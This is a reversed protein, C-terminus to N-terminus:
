IGLRERLKERIRMMDREDLVGLRRVLKATSVTQIQQLHFAGNRLFPKPISIEWPNGRLSTTHIVVTLLALEDDQPKDTLLLTPRVKAALGFDIMWVDGRKPIPM